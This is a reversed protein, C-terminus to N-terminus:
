GFSKSALEKNWFFRCGWYSLRSPDYDWRGPTSYEKYNHDNEKETFELHSKCMVIHCAQAFNRAKAKGMLTAGGSGGTAAWGESWVEYEKLEPFHNIPPIKIEVGDRNTYYNTDYIRESLNRLYYEELEDISDWYKPNFEKQIQNFTTSIAM